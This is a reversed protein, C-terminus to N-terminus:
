RVGQAEPDYHAMVLTAVKVAGKKTLRHRRSVIQFGLALEGTASGGKSNYLKLMKDRFVANGHMIPRIIHWPNDVARGFRTVPLHRRKGEPTIRVMSVAHTHSEEQFRISYMAFGVFPWGRTHGMLGAIIQLSLLSLLVTSLAAIKYRHLLNPRRKAALGFVVGFLVVVGVASSLLFSLTLYFPFESEIQIIRPTSRRLDRDIAVIAISNAGPPFDEMTARDGDMPRLIHHGNRYYRFTAGGLARAELQLELSGPYRVTIKSDGPGGDVTAKIVSPLPGEDPLYYGWGNAGLIALAGDTKVRLERFPRTPLSKVGDVTRGWFYAPDVPGFSKETLLWLRRQRDIHVGVPSGRPAGDGLEVRDITNVDRSTVYLGNAAAIFIPGGPDRALARVEGLESDGVIHLAIRKHNRERWVDQGDSCVFGGGWEKIRTVQPTANLDIGIQTLLFFVVIYM